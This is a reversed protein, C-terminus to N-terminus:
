LEQPIVVVPVAPIRPTSAPSKNSRDHNIEKRKGCCGGKNIQSNVYTNVEEEFEDDLKFYENQHELVHQLKMEKATIIEEPIPQDLERLKDIKQCINHLENRLIKERNKYRKIESFVNVSYIKPYRYRITEPIIFQNVDKIEEIKKEVQTVFDQVKKDVNDDKILLVKGSFFECMTQLKDFQYASTKHAEAKSDLKLFSILSILLTSVGALCSVIIPGYSYDKLVMSIISCVASIFITPLMLYNFKEECHNKSDIYLIKQGKLYVAIIDLTTSNQTMPGWYTHTILSSFEPFSGLDEIITKNQANTDEQETNEQQEKIVDDEAMFRGKPEPPVSTYSVVSRQDDDVTNAMNRKSLNIPKSTSESHKFAANATAATIAKKLRKGERSQM